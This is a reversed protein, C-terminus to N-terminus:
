VGGFNAIEESVGVVDVDSEVLALLLASLVDLSELSSGHHVEEVLWGAHEERGAVSGEWGHGSRGESVWGHGHHSLRGTDTSKHTGRLNRREHSGGVSGVVVLTSVESSGVVSVRLMELVSSRSSSSILLVSGSSSRLVLVVSSSVVLSTIVLSAVVVVWSSGVRSGSLDSRGLHLRLRLSRLNSWNLSRGSSHEISRVQSLVQWFEQLEGLLVLSSEESFHQEGSNGVEDSIGLESGLDSTHQDIELNHLNWFDNLQELVLVSQDLTDLLSLIENESSGALLSSSSTTSIIVLAKM